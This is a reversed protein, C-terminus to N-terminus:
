GTSPWPRGEKCINLATWCHSSFEHAVPGGSRDLVGGAAGACSRPTKRGSVDKSSSGRRLPGGPRKLRCSLRWATNAPRSPGPHPSPAGPWVGRARGGHWSNGNWCPGLEQTGPSDANSQSPNQSHAPEKSGQPHTPMTGPSAQKPQPPTHALWRGQSPGAGAGLRGSTGRQLDGWQSAATRGMHSLTVQRATPNSARCVKRPSARPSVRHTKALADSPPRCGADAVHKKAGHSRTDRSVQSM